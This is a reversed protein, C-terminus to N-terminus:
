GIRKALDLLKTAVDLAGALKASDATMGDVEDALTKMEDILTDDPPSIAGSGALLEDLRSKIRAREEVLRNRNIHLDAEETAPPDQALREDIADISADIALIAANCADIENERPTGNTM